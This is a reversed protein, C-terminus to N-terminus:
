ASIRNALARLTQGRTEDIGLRGTDLLLDAVDALRDIAAETPNRRVDALSALETAPSARRIREYRAALVDDPATLHIHFPRAISQVVAIQDPTRVADVVLLDPECQLEAEVAAAVWGGREADDLEEGLEQLADRAVESSTEQARARILDRTRLIKAAARKHLGDSLTTKGACVPGSM